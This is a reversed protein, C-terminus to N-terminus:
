PAAVPCAVLLRESHRRPFAIPPSTSLVMARTPAHSHGPHVLPLRHIMSTSGSMMDDRFSQRIRQEFHEGPPLSFRRGGAYGQRPNLERHMSKLSDEYSSFLFYKFNVCFNFRIM